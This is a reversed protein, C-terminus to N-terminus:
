KCKQTAQHKQEGEVCHLGKAEEKQFSVSRKESTGQGWEGGSLNVAAVAVVVAVALGRGRGRRRRIGFGPHILAACWKFRASLSAYDEGGQM